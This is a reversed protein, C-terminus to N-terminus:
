KVNNANLITEVVSDWNDAMLRLLERGKDQRQEQKDWVNPLLLKQLADDILSELIAPELADLEWSSDGFEARYSKSRSDTIKAPNPPPNYKEVQSMNLALRFVKVPLPRGDHVMFTELRDCVDRTMDIGSPDHDGLHLIVPIQRNLYHDMMRQSALWMESQSTYGRCSFYPVDLRNCVNAVVGILADKEVWCEPRFRQGEWMDVSFVKHAEDVIESPEDWHSLQRLMRTRDVISHWDILGAMRADSVISGLRRYSKDTNPILDRSVFQYYLQRLTLDYGQHSYEDIIVNAEDIIELAESRFNHDRYIIKPM